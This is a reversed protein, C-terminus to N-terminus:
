LSSVVLPKGKHMLIDVDMNFIAKLNAPTVVSQPTGETVIRGDKIAVIRDAWAAAMNIDHVVMTVSIGKQRVYSTLTRMLERAHYMDLNNLPEDLLVYPTQQCLTMAILARQLQGGSLTTLYRYKEAQLSFRELMADVERRDNDNPRGQHIPYRGFLLLDNVTLRAQIHNLQTLITLKKAMARASYAKLPKEDIFIEGGQLPNLRAMISLLTSKGAGNPGILATIGSDPLTLNIAKLLAKEGISWDVNEIRIM